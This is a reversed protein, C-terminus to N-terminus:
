RTIGTLRFGEPLRELFAALVRWLCGAVQGFAGLCRAEGNSYAREAVTTSEM